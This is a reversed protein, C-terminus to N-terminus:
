VFASCGAMQLGASRTIRVSRLVNNIQAQRNNQSPLGNLARISNLISLAKRHFQNVYPKFVRYRYQFRHFVLLFLM